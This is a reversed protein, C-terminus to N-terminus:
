VSRLRLPTPRLSLSSIVQLCSSPRELVAPKPTAEGSAIKVSDYFNPNEIQYSLREGNFSSELQILPVQAGVIIRKIEDKYLDQETACSVTFASVMLASLFMFASVLRNKM